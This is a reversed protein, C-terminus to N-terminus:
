RRDNIKSLLNDVLLLHNRLFIKRPNHCVQLGQDLVQVLRSSQIGDRLKLNYYHSHKDVKGVVLTGINEQHLGAHTTQLIRGIDKGGQCYNTRGDTQVMLCKQSLGVSSYGTVLDGDQTLPNREDIRGVLWFHLCYKLLM